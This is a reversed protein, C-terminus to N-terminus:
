VDATIEFCNWAILSLQHLLCGEIWLIHSYYFLPMREICPHSLILFLARLSQLIERDKPSRCPELTLPSYAWFVLVIVYGETM